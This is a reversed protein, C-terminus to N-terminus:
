VTRVVIEVWDEGEVNVIEIPLNSHKAKLAEAYSVLFDKWV